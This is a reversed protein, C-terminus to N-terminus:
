GISDAIGGRGKKEATARGGKDKMGEEMKSREKVDERLWLRSLTDDM